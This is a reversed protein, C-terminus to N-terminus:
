SEPPGQLEWHGKSVPLPDLAPIGLVAVVLWVYSNIEQSTASDPHPHARLTFYVDSKLCHWVFFIFYRM